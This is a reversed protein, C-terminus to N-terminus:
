EFWVIHIPNIHIIKDSVKLKKDNYALERVEIYPFLMAQSKIEDPSEKVVLIDGTTLQIKTM